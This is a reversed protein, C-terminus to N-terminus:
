ILNGCLLRQMYDKSCVANQIISPFTSSRLTISPLMVTMDSLASIRILRRNELDVDWTDYTQQIGTKKRLLLMGDKRDDGTSVLYSTESLGSCVLSGTQRVVFTLHPWPELVVRLVDGGRTPIYFRGWVSLGRKITPLKGELEDTCSTDVVRWVVDKPRAYVLLTCTQSSLSLVVNPPESSRAHGQENVEVLVGVAKINFQHISTFSPLDTFAMTLPNLLCVSDTIDDVLILMGETNGHHTYDEPTPLRIRLITGTRVNVFREAVSDTRLKYGPSLM